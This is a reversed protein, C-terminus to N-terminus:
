QGSRWSERAENPEKSHDSFALVEARYPPLTEGALSTYERSKKADHVLNHFVFYPSM